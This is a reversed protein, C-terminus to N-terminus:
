QRSPLSRQLEPLPELDIFQGRQDLEVWYGALCDTSLTGGPQCRKRLAQIAEWAADEYCQDVRDGHRHFRAPVAGGLVWVTATWATRGGRKDSGLRYTPAHANLKNCIASLEAQNPNHGGYRASPNLLTTVVDM